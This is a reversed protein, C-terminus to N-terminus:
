DYVRVTTLDYKSVLRVQISGDISPDMWLHVCKKITGKLYRVLVRSVLCKEFFLPNKEM